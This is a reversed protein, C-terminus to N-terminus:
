NASCNVAYRGRRLTATEGKVILTVGDKAYRAGSVALRKPLLLSKGDLQLGVSGSYYGAEFQTGDTCQYAVFTQTPQQQAMAAGAGLFVAIYIAHKMATVLSDDPSVKTTASGVGPYRQAGDPSGADSRGPM